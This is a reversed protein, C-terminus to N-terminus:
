KVCRINFGYARNTASLSVSNRLFGLYRAFGSGTRSSSWYYGNIGSNVLAGDYELRWGTSPLFIQNPANGFLRGNVGNLTKQRSDVYRLLRLEESTPMRWGLPCPDDVRAWATIGFPVSSDWGTVTGTVSWGQARGWQYFQGVAEPSAAFTGPADVNRTAWRVGSIVVGEDVSGNTGYAVFTANLMLLLGFLYSLKRMM